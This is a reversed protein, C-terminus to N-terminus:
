NTTTAAAELAAVRAALQAVADDPTTIVEEVAALRAQTQAKAWKPDEISRATVTDGNGYVHCDPNVGGLHMPPAALRAPAIRYLIQLPHEALYARWTDVSNVGPIEVRVYINGNTHPLFTNPSYGQSSAPGFKLYNSWVSAFDIHNPSPLASCFGFYTETNEEPRYDIWSESGNYIACATGDEMWGDSDYTAPADPLGYLPAPLTATQTAGSYPTYPTDPELTISLDSFEMTARIFSTEGPKRWIESYCIM